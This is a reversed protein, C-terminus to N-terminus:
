CVSAAPRRTTFRELKSDEAVLSNPNAPLKRRTVAQSRRRELIVEGDARVRVVVATEITEASLVHFGEPVGHSNMLISDSGLKCASVVDIIM